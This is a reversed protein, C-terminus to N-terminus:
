AGHDAPPATRRARCGIHAGHDSPGPLTARMPTQLPKMTWRRSLEARAAPSTPVATRLGRRPPTCPTKHEPTDEAGSYKKTGGRLTNAEPTPRDEESARASWVQGRHDSAGEHRRATRQGRGDADDGGIGTDDAGGVGPGDYNMREPINNGNADM